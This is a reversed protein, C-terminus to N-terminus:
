MTVVETAMDNRGGHQKDSIKVQDPNVVGLRIAFDSRGIEEILVEAMDLRRGYKKLSGAEKSVRVRRGNMVLENTRSVQYMLLLHGASVAGLVMVKEVDSAGGLVVVAAYVLMRSIWDLANMVDPNKPRSLWSGSTVSKLDDVLGQLRIWRDGALLILLDGHVGPESAGHWSPVTRAKISVISLLRSLLLCSLALILSVSTSSFATIIKVILVLAPLSPLLAPGPSSRPTTLSDEESFVELTTLWGTKGVKRLFMVTAQNEVRFVYGTTMAACAPYEGENLTSPSVPTQLGLCLQLTSLYSPRGTLALHIHLPPLPGPTALLLIPLLTLNLRPDMKILNSIAYAAVHHDEKPLDQARSCLM